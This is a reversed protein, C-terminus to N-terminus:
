TIIFGEFIYIRNNKQDGFDHGKRVINKPTTTNKQAPNSQRREDTSRNLDSCIKKQQWHHLRSGDCAPCLSDLFIGQSRIPRIKLRPKLLLVVFTASEVTKRCSVVPRHGGDPFTPQKTGRKASAPNAKRPVPIKDARFNGEM